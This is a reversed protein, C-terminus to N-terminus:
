HEQELYEAALTPGFDAYEARVLEIAKQETAAPIKRSSARGRLGHIVAKDGMRRVNRLMRRVHRQSVGLHEAAERQTIRRKKAESM